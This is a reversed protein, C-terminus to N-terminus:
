RSAKLFNAMSSSPPWTLAASLARQFRKLAAMLFVTAVGESGRSLTYLIDQYRQAKGLFQM